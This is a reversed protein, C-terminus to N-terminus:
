PCGCPFLYYIPLVCWLPVFDSLDLDNKSFNSKVRVSEFLDYQLFVLDWIPRAFYKLSLSVASNVFQYQYMSVQYGSGLSLCSVMVCLGPSARDKPLVVGSM